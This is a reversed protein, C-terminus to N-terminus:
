LFHEIELSIGAQYYFSDRCLVNFSSMNYNFHSYHKLINQMLVHKYNGSIIITYYQILIPKIHLILSQDVWM